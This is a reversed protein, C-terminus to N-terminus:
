QRPDFGSERFGVAVLESATRLVDGRVPDAESALAIEQAIAVYDAGPPPEPRLDCMLGLVWLALASV